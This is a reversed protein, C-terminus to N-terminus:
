SKKKGQLDANCSSFSFFPSTTGQYARSVFANLTSDETAELPLENWERITRPRFSFQQYQIRCQLQTYQQNQGQHQCDARNFDVRIIDTHVLNNRMKRLEVLRVMRQRQQLTVWNLQNIMTSVSSTNHDHNLVFYAVRRQISEVTDIHKKTCLEWVSSAYELIPRVLALYAKERRQPSSIKLNQRLFGLTKNAKATIANIHSDWSAQKHITIGLYKAPTM